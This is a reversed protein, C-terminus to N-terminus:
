QENVEWVSGWRWGSGGTRTIVGSEQLRKLRRKVTSLPIGTQESITKATLPKGSACLRKLRPVLLQDSYGMHVIGLM